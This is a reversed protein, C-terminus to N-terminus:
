RLLFFVNVSLISMFLTFGCLKEPQTPSKLWEDRVRILELPKVLGVPKTYIPTAAWLRVLSKECSLSKKKVSVEALYKNLAQEVTPSNKILRLQQM